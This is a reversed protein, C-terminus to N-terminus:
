KAALLRANLQTLLTNMMTLTSAEVAVTKRTALLEQIMRNFAKKDGTSVSLGLAASFASRDQQTFISEMQAGALGPEIDELTFIRNKVLAGFKEEYRNKQTIGASDSDLLVIFNKAWASYLAIVSDLTSAGNGPYFSTNTTGLLFQAYRLSYFDNKGEVLVLEPVLELKSPSYELVDLIPQFYQTQSPHSAAFVRYKEIV